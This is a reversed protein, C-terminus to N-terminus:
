IKAYLKISDIMIELGKYNKVKEKSENYIINEDTIFFIKLSNLCM